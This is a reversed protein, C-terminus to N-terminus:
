VPFEPKFGLFKRDSINNCLLHNQPREKAMSGFDMLIGFKSHAEAKIGGEVERLHVRKLYGTSKKRRKLSRERYQAM